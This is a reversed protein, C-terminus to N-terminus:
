QKATPRAANRLHNQIMIYDGARISVQRGALYDDAMNLIAPAIDAPPMEGKEIYAKAYGFTLKEFDPSVELDIQHQERWPEPIVLYAVWWKRNWIWQSLAVTFKPAM